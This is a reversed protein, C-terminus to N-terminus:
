SPQEDPDRQLSTTTSAVLGLPPGLHRKVTVGLGARM